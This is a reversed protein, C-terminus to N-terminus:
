VVRASDIFLRIKFFVGNTEAPSLYRLFYFEALVAGCSSLRYTHTKYKLFAYSFSPNASAGKECCKLFHSFLASSNM